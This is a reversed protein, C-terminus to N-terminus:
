EPKFVWTWGSDWIADPIYLVLEDETLSIISYAGSPNYGGEGSNDGGLVNTGSVYLMQNAIDLVFSGLVGAGGADAFYTYNAGGNLDFHMKGAADGPPCCDGGANWWLSWAQDPGGPASMFWWLKGDPNPGGDFVWTKGGATDESVLDYWDQDLAHDLQDVQVDITKSFFEAGLTGTFTFTATGPIPYIFTVRNTLAKGLNYDWYGTIGPTVMDLTIENGGTTSQTAVLEVGAVDTTNELYEEDVVTDCASFVLVLSVILLSVIKNIKMKRIKYILCNM